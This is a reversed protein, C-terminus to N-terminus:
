LVDKEFICSTKSFFKSFILFNKEGNKQNSENGSQLLTPLSTLSLFMFHHLVSNGNCPFLTLISPVDTQKLQLISVEPLPREIM